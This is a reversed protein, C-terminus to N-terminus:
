SGGHSRDQTKDFNTGTAGVMALEVEGHAAEISPMNLSLLNLEGM